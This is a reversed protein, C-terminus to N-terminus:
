RRAKNPYRPPPPVQPPEKAIEQQLHQIAADLQADQGLYTQHPPNDVPLDPDIGHGEILWVGEPGYVGYEAATAIGDDVLTNGFSLWIEGGLSRRGVVKGLGLRRFGEVFIEGDSVTTEDCLVVLKGLFAMQMNSYPAGVRGQWWMWAKRLLKELIWSEVNGGNNHRADIILGDRRLSPYFERSWQEYDATGMARLHVYGIKGQSLSEVRQRRQYEWEHYRLNSEDGASIPTAIVDREKGQPDRVRLRVQKGAKGRLLAAPHAVERAPTGDLAIIVDKEKVEVGPRALPARLAPEDPDSAYIHDVRFGSEVPSFTAGLSAPKVDDPGERFDGGFVYMHLASLEGIMDEFISSLEERSTVRDVLPLYRERVAKWDVGHMGPDYFYDRELRWAELFMQRWEQRPDIPFSWDGLSVQAESLDADAGASADIVYLEDDKRLLLHEGDGSLEYSTLDSSISQTEVKEHGLDLSLLESKSDPDFSRSLFFLRKANMALSGYNGAPIEIVQLRAALGETEIAVPAAGSGGDKGKKDGKGDDSDSADDKAGDDEKSSLEDPAQFPSRLGAKLPLACLQTQEDFFPEPQRVGWPSQVASKLRRDSLFYLWEGGPDWVPNYSAYRDTTATVIQKTKADYLKIQTFYNDAVEVYALWRGDPSWRLDYFIDNESKAIQAPQGLKQDLLWLVQNKDAYALRKGDPSIEASFRLISGGRTWASTEGIGNAPLQWLEIEGTQDSWAVLDDGNPLFKADRYRSGEQRSAQVMRGDKVPAVFVQGRATLVAKDGAPALHVASVYDFPKDIWKERWQDVDSALTIELKQDRGSAVDYLWLDAGRQYVVRGRDIGAGRLDFEHQKTLARADKGELDSTWLNMTGDRDSLFYLRGGDLMPRKSTGNWDGTLLRAENAGRDFRWLQQAAGGQYRKTNSGHEPLRTFFLNGSADFAGEAAQALEIPEMAGNAPDVLFLQSNPLGSRRRSSVLVRGDPSWGTVRYSGGDWTLRRPLGGEIPMVYAESPGEYQGTFAVWRGDPSIEAQSEVRPHSTLREAVGGAAGVRWLDGEATFVIMDGRLAPYRYFGLVGEARVPLATAALALVVGYLVRWALTRFVLPM